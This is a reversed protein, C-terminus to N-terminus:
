ALKMQVRVQPPEWSSEGTTTNFYYENGTQPDLCKTWEFVKDDAMTTTLIMSTSDQSEVDDVKSDQSEVDDINSDSRRKSKFCPILRDYCWTTWLVCCMLALCILAVCSAILAVALGQMEGNMNFDPDSGLLIPITVTAVPDITSFKMFANPYGTPEPKFVRIVIAQSNNFLPESFHFQLANLAENAKSPRTFFSLTKCSGLELMTDCDEVTFDRPRMAYFQTPLVIRLGGPKESNILIKVGVMYADQDLDVIQVGQVTTVINKAVTLYQPAVLTPPTVRSHIHISYRGTESALDAAVIVARYEFTVPCGEERLGGCKNFLQGALGTYQNDGVRTFYHADGLFLINPSSFNTTSANIRSGVVLENGVVADFLRGHQPLSVIELQMTQKGIIANRAQLHIPIYENIETGNSEWGFTACSNTSSLPCIELPNTITLELSAIPGRPNSPLDQFQFGFTEHGVFDNGSVVRHINSSNTVYCFMFRQEGNDSNIPQLPVNASVSLAVNCTTPNIMYVIRGFTGKTQNFFVRATSVYKTPSIRLRNSSVLGNSDVVGDDLDDATVEFIFMSGLRVRTNNSNITHAVPLDSMDRICISITGVHPSLCNPSLATSTTHDCLGDSVAFQFSDFEKRCTPDTSNAQSFRAPDHQLYALLSTNAVHFPMTSIEVNNYLLKGNRPLTTIYYAHVPNSNEDYVASFANLNIAKTAAISQPFELWTATTAPVPNSNPLGRAFLDAVHEAALATDYFALLNIEGPYGRVASDLTAVRTSGIRLVSDARIAFAKVKEGRMNTATSCHYLEGFERGFYLNFNSFSNEVTGDLTLALFYKNGLSTTTANMLEAFIPELNDCNLSITTPATKTNVYM